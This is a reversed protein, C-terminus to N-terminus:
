NSDIWGKWSMPNVIKDNFIGITTQGVLYSTVGIDVDEGVVM